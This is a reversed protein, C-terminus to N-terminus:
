RIKNFMDDRDSLFDKYEYFLESLKEDNFSRLLLIAEDASYDNYFYVMHQALIDRERNNM